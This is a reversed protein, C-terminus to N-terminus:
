SLGSGAVARRSAGADPNEKFVPIYDDDLLRGSQQYNGGGSLPAVRSVGHHKRVNLAFTRRLLQEDNM